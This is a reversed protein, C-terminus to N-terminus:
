LHTFKKNYIKPQTQIKQNLTLDQKFDLEQINISM